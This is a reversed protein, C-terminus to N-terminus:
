HGLVRASFLAKRTRALFFFLCLSRAAQIFSPSLFSSRQYAGNSNARSFFTSPLLLYFFLSRGTQFEAVLFELASIRWELERLVGPKDTQTGQTGTKKKVRKKLFLRENARTLSACYV